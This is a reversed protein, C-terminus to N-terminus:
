GRRRCFQSPALEPWLAAGIKVALGVPQRMGVAELDPLHPGEGITPQHNRAGPAPRRGLHCHDVQLRQASASAHESARGRLQLHPICARALHPSHCWQGGRVRTLPQERRIVDAAESTQVRSAEWVLAASSAVRDLHARSLSWDPRYGESVPRM